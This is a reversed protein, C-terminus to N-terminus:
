GNLRNRAIMWVPVPTALGDIEQDPLHMLEDLLDANERTQRRARDVFADSAVLAADLRRTMAELRSAVNVTNGITAFELRKVGIDGLIVPGFHLGFSAQVLEQGSKSRAENWADISAMMARACSLARPADIPTTEPTGFTVMLGDGLYKDLTGGYRFVEYEMRAHFERLTAIVEDPPHLAAFKTFGVIDVFLVAVDQSRVRRLPEDNSSLEDVMNPSFYRALNTRQRELLAHDLLLAQSRYVGLALMVSVLLFVVLEQLRIDLRVNNPDFIRALMEDDGFAAAAAATLAPDGNSFISIIIVGLLWLGAVGLGMAIITRWSYMLTAGALLVFYYIFNDFRYRMAVPWDTDNLPNPVLVAITLLGVDCLLLLLELWLSGTKNLKEHAWGVAVFLVLLFEYYLVPWTPNICPLLIAIVSAALLRAMLALKLSDQKHKVIAARAWHNSDDMPAETQSAKNLKDLVQALTETWGM